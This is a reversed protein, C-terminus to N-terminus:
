NPVKRSTKSRFFSVCNWRVSLIHHYSLLLTMAREEGIKMHFSLVQWVSLSFLEEQGIEKKSWRSQSSYLCIKEPSERLLHYYFLEVEVVGNSAKKASVRFSDGISNWWIKKMGEVGNDKKKESQETHKLLWLERPFLTCVCFSFTKNNSQQKLM